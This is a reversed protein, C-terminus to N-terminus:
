GFATGVYFAVRTFAAEAGKAARAEDGASLPVADLAAVFTKWHLGRGEPAAALHRAGFREDLGLAAAAKLLFAAGLNSGEAVYLWGLAEPLPADPGLGPAEAPAPVPLGLDALDAAIDALRRRGPLDPLLAGLAPSDYLAAIDRHFLYQVTLFRGYRERSEFPRGAMIASDLREHAVHTLAKLASARSEARAPSRDLEATTM